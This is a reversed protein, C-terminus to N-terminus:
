PTTAEYTDRIIDHITRTPRWGLQARAKSSNPVKEGNARGFFAYSDGWRDVPDALQWNADTGTQTIHHSCVKGALDAIEITNKENGINWAGGLEILGEWSSVIFEAIDSVHTFSRVARPEYVTLKENRRAQTIFTPVVFGKLASQRPGATNFPRITAWRLGEINAIVAEATAKALGYESRATFPGDHGVPWDETPKGFDHIPGDNEYTVGYVESSSINILPIRLRACEHALSTTAEVIDIAIQGGRQSVLGPGVPAACHVVLDLKPKLVNGHITPVGADRETHHWGCWYAVDSFITDDSRPIVNGVCNDVVVVDAGYQRFEDALHSGIFGLGGTIAVRM